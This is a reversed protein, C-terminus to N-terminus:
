KKIAQEIKDNEGQKCNVEKTKYGAEVRQINAKNKLLYYDPLTNIDIDALRCMVYLLLFSEAFLTEITASTKQDHSDAYHISDLLSYKAHLLLDLDDSSDSDEKLQSLMDDLIYNSPESICNMVEEPTGYKLLLTLCFHLVDVIEVTIDVKKVEPRKKWWKWQGTITELFESVETEIAILCKTKTITTIRWDIGSYLTNLSDQLDLMRLMDGSLIYIRTKNQEISWDLVDIIQETVNEVSQFADISDVRAKPFNFQWLRLGKIYNDKVRDLIKTTEFLEAESGRKSMREMCTKVPVDFYFTYEPTPFHRNLDMVEELSLDLSQYALSSFLYRDCIVWGDSEIFDIIKDVHQTRDLIFMEALEKPTKKVKKTLVDRIALGEPDATPEHTTMVKHGSAVLYDKVKNIQTTTGAGDLGELVIFNKLVGDIIM